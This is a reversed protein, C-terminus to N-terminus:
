PKMEESCETRGKTAAPAEVWATHEVMGHEQLAHALHTGLISREAGDGSEKHLHISVDGALTAHRYIRARAAAGGVGIARRIDAVLGPPTPGALRLHIIELRTM